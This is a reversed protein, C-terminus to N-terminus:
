DLTELTVESRESKAYRAPLLKALAAYSAKVWEDYIGDLTRRINAAHIEIAQDELPFAQDELLFQYEELELESLGRPRESELLAKAFNAYLNGMRATAETTYEAIAYETVQTYAEMAKDMAAKKAALSKDLPLTIRRREFDRRADNALTLAAEAALTRSRTSRQQGARKESAILAKLWRRNAATDGRAETIEILREQAKLLQSYPQSYTTAFYSYAAEAKGIADAEDYLTAAQWAAEHRAQTTEHPSRAIREFEAGALLPKDAKLYVGALKRTVEPQLEHDPYSRRFSLLVEAAEDWREQGILAAAADFEGAAALESGPLVDKVRLYHGIAVDIEGAQQAAEGQRYIATALNETLEARKPDDAAVHQLAQSLGQEAEPYREQDMHAYGILTWAQGFLPKADPRDLATVREAIAIADDRADISYLDEAARLMVKPQEEHEPFSDAFRMSTGVSDRVRASRQEPTANEALTQRSLVAAYGAEASREHPPYEWATREFEQAALAFAQNQYHAEALLFNIEPRNDADDFRALYRAYTQTAKDFLQSRAQTSEAKQARAHWHRALEEMNSRLTEYAEPSDERSHATWYIQDLDYKEVYDVKAQLVLDGFGAQDYVDIVRAQFIPALPHTPSRDALAAYARAADDFRGKDLFLQALNEYLVPEFSRVPKGQLYETIAQGGGLYSFSLSVVRLVDRVLERQARPVVELTAELNEVAGVPLERDLIALFTDLSDAYREQKFISWGYKYQAQEFYSTEKGKALVQAYAKEAEAYDRQNFLLEARRFQSDTWLASDPFNTTLEGLSEIALEVQGTNQYARALQYLIRDNAPDDPRSDLLSNYLDISNGPNAIGKEEATPDLESVEVQLDALRRQAEWKVLRSEPNLELIKRYNEIAKKTNETVEPLPAPKASKAEDASDTDEAQATQENSQAQEQDIPPLLEDLTKTAPELQDLNEHQKPDYPTACAVVFAVTTVAISLRLKM